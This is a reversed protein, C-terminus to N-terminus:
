RSSYQNGPDEIKQKRGHKKIESCAGLPQRERLVGACRGSLPTFPQPRSQTGDRHAGPALYRWNKPVRELSFFSGSFEGGGMVVGAHNALCVVHPALTTATSQRPGTNPPSKPVVVGIESLM